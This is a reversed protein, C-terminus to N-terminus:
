IYNFLVLEIKKKKIYKNIVHIIHEASGALNMSM